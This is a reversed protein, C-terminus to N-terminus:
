AAIGPEQFVVRDMVGESIAARYIATAFRPDDALRDPDSHPLWAMGGSVVQAMLDKDIPVIVGCTM